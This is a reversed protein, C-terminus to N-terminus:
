NIIKYYIIIVDVPKPLPNTDLRVVECFLLEILLYKLILFM